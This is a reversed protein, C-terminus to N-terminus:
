DTTEGAEAVGAVDGLIRAVAVCRTRDVGAGHPLPGTLPHGALAAARAQPVCARHRPLAQMPGLAQLSFVPVTPSPAPTPGLAQSCFAPCTEFCAQWSNSAHSLFRPMTPSFLQTPVSAQAAFWLAMALFLQWPVSAQWPLWPFTLAPDQLPSAAQAAAPAPPAM